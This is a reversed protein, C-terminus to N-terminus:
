RGSTGRTVGVESHLGMEADKLSVDGKQWVDAVAASSMVLRNM